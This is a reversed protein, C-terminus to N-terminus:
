SVYLEAAQDEVGVLTSKVRYIHWLLSLYHVSLMPTFLFHTMNM